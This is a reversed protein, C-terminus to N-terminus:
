LRHTLLNLKDVPKRQILKFCFSVDRSRGQYVLSHQGNLTVSAPLDRSHYNKGGPVMEEGVVVRQHFSAAMKKRHSEGHSLQWLDPQSGSSVDAQEKIPSGLSDPSNTTPYDLSLTKLCPALSIRKRKSPENTENTTEDEKRTSEM